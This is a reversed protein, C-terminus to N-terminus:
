TFGPEFLDIRDTCIADVGWGMLERARDPANVTYCMLGYGAQKIQTALAPTLYVHSCHVAIGDLAALQREWDAPIRKWLMARGFQPAAERAAQLAEVSFSSFVPPAPASEGAEVGAQLEDWVAQTVQGVVTGTAVEFGPVPKIEVNMWIGSRHLWRIIDVYLPIPEGRFRPALWSGADMTALQASPTQAVGGRGSVTRGFLPDHMLVPVADAALMVDFEVAKHGRSWAERMGALTNEPALTGGGRHAIVRPFHWGPQVPKM